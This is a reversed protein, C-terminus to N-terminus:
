SRTKTVTTGVTTVSQSISGADISTPTHIAPTGVKLGLYTHIEDILSRDAASFEDGTVILGASNNSKVSVQNPNTVDGVNSNAGVLDVTYTGDEFTVSYGNIIEIVRAFTLAGLTVTTNHRHTDLFSMGEESAEISKLELRFADLDLERIEPSVQTVPMDARPVSIVRTPWDISIAM